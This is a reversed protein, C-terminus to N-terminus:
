ALFSLINVALLGGAAVAARPRRAELSRALVRSSFFMALVHLALLLPTLAGFRWHLAPALVPVVMYTLTCRLASCWLALNLSRRGPAAPSEVARAGRAEVAGAVPQATATM